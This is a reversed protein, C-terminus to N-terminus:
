LLIGLEKGRRIADGRDAAGIKRYIAKTHSKITNKSVNLDQAIEGLTQTGRLHQLVRVERETLPEALSRERGRGTPLRRTKGPYDLPAEREDPFIALVSAAKEVRRLQRIMVDHERHAALSLMAAAVEKQIRAIAEMRSAAAAMTVLLYEEVEARSQGSLRPWGVTGLNERPRFRGLEVVPCTM